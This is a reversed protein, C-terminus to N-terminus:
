ACISCAGFSGPVDLVCTGSEDDDLGFNVHHSISQFPVGQCSSIKSSLSSICTTRFAM